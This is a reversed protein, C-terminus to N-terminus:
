FSLQVPHRQLVNNKVLANGGSSYPAFQLNRVRLYLLSFFPPFASSLIHFLSSCLNVEEIPYGRPQWTMLTEQTHLQHLENSVALIFHNNYFYIM